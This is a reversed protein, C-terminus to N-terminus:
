FSLLLLLFWDVNWWRAEFRGPAVNAKSGLSTGAFGLMRSPVIFSEVTLHHRLQWIRVAQHLPSTYSPHVNSMCGEILAGSAADSDDSVM